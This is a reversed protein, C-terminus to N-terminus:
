SARRPPTAFVNQGAVLTGDRYNVGVLRGRRTMPDRALIAITDGDDILVVFGRRVLRQASDAVSEVTVVKKVPAWAPAWHACLLSVINGVPQDGAQSVTNYVSQDLVCRKIAQTKENDTM